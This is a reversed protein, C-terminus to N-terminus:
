ISVKLGCRWRGNYLNKMHINILIISKEKPLTRTENNRSIVASFFMRRGFCLGFCLGFRLSPFM